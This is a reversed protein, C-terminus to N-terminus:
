RLRAHGSEEDGASRAEEAPRDDGGRRRGAPLDHSRRQRMRRPRHQVHAVGRRDIANNTRNRGVDDDVGGVALVAVLRHRDVRGAGPMDRRGGCRRARPHHVHRRVRDEGTVAIARQAFTVHHPRDGDVPGRLRRALDRHLRRVGVRQHDPGRQQDAARAVRWRRVLRERKGHRTALLLHHEEGVLDARRDLDVIQGRHQQLQRGLLTAARQVDSPSVM